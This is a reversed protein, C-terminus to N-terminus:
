FNACTWNMFFTKVLYVWLLYRKCSPEGMNGNQLYHFPAFSKLSCRMENYHFSAFSKPSWRLENSAYAISALNWLCRWTTRSKRCWYTKRGFYRWINMFKLTFFKGRFSLKNGNTLMQSYNEGVSLKECKNKMPFRLKNKFQAYSGVQPHKLKKWYWRTNKRIKKKNLEFYLIM